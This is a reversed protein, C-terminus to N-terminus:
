SLRSDGGEEREEGEIAAREKKWRADRERQGENRTRAAEGFGVGGEVERCSEFENSERSGLLFDDLIRM